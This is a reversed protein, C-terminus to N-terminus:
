LEDGKGVTKNLMLWNCVIELCEPASLLNKHKFKRYSSNMDHYQFTENMKWNKIVWEIVASGVLGDGKQTIASGFGRWSALKMGLTTKIGSNFLINTPVDLPKPYRRTYFYNKEAIKLQRETLKKNKVLFDVLQPAKYENGDPDIILTTNAYALSHPMHIHLTGLTCTFETVGRPRFFQVLASEIRLLTNISTGSGSWSPAILTTSNIYQKRWEPTTKETLFIHALQSGLSHAVIAVKTNNNLKYAKEILERLSNYYSEPMDAGFRWDYPAAFLDKKPVYGYEIFKNVMRWMYSFFYRLFYPGTVTVDSIGGFDEPHVDVGERSQQSNTTENYDVTMWDLFCNLFPPIFYKMNIFVFTDNAFKPCYWGARRSSTVHLRSRFSGPILVIPHLSNVLTLFLLLFM